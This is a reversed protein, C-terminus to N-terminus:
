MIEVCDNMVVEPMTVDEPMTMTKVFKNIKNVVKNKNSKTVTVAYNYWTGFFFIVVYKLMSKQFIFTQYFNM